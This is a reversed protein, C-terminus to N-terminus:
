FRKITKLDENHRKLIEGQLCQAHEVSCFPHFASGEDFFKWVDEVGYRGTEYNLTMGRYDALISYSIYDPMIKAIQDLTKKAWEFDIKEDPHVGFMAYLGIKMGADKAVKCKQAVVEPSIRKHLRKLADLSVNEISFSTYTCGAEPMRWILNDPLNSTATTQCGWELSKEIQERTIANMLELTRGPNGAFNLDNFFLANYGMDIIRKLHEVVTGTALPVYNDSPCFNCSMNCGRGSMYTLMRKGKFLADDFRYSKDDMNLLHYAPFLMKWDMEIEQGCIIRLLEQEANRQTVVHDIWPHHLKTLEGRYVEQPGGSITIIDPHQEHLKFLIEKTEINNPTYSTIGVHTPKFDILKKELVNNPSVNLDILQVEAHKEVAAALYALNLPLQGANLREFFPNILLLRASGNNKASSRVPAKLNVPKM